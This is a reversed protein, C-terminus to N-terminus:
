GQNAKISRSQPATNLFALPQVIPPLISFRRRSAYFLNKGPFIGRNHVILCSQARNSWTPHVTSLSGRAPRRFPSKKGNPTMFKNEPTSRSPSEHQRSLRGPLKVPYKGRMRSVTDCNNLNTLINQHSNSSFSDFALAGSPLLRMSGPLRMPTFCKGRFPEFPEFFSNLSQEGRFVRLM